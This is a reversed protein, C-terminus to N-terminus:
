GRLIFPTWTVGHPTNLNVSNFFANVSNNNMIALTHTKVAPKNIRRRSSHNFWIETKSTNNLQARWVYRVKPRPAPM